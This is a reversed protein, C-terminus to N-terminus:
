WLYKLGIVASHATYPRYVYGLVLSSPQVIGNVVRRTSRSTTSASRSTSIRSRRPWAAQDAPAARRPAAAAAQQLREAAPQAADVTRWARDRLPLQRRRLQLRLVPSSRHEPRIRPPTVYISFYNVSKPRIRRGTACRTPKRGPTRRDRNSSAATASTTTASAGGGFGNPLQSLRRRCRSRGSRRSRCASIATTSTTRASAPRLRQVGVPRQSRRGGPRHVSPAHSEAVDYHRMAPQEGIQM